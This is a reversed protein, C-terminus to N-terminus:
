APRLLQCPTWIVSETESALEHEKLYCDMNMTLIVHFTCYLVRVSATSAPPLQRGYLLLTDVISAHIFTYM